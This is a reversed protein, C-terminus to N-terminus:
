KRQGLKEEVKQNKAREKLKRLKECEKAANRVPHMYDKM